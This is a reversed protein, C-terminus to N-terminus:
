CPPAEQRLDKIILQLSRKGNWVNISPSFLLDIRPGSVEKEALGFGVADLTRGGTSLCIKLHGGKLVRWDCVKAGRLLFVPEPNGMGFPKLTDLEAPLSERLDKATLEADYSLVPILAEADLLGAAAEDFRLAFRELE